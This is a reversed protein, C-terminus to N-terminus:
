FLDSTYWGIGLWFFIFGCASVGLTKPRLAAMLVWPAIFLSQLLFLFYSMHTSLSLAPGCLAYLYRTYAPYEARLTLHRFTLWAVVVLVLYLFIGVMSRRLGSPSVKSM